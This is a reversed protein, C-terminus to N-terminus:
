PGELCNGLRAREGLGSRSNVESLSRDAHMDALELVFHARQKKEPHVFFEIEGLGTTREESVSFADDPSVVFCLGFESRDASWRSPTQVYPDSRSRDSGM